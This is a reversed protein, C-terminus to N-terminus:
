RDTNERRAGPRHSRSRRAAGPARQLEYESATEVSTSPRDISDVFEALSRLSERAITIRRRVLPRQPGPTITSFLEGVTVDLARAIRVLLTARPASEGREVAGIHKQSTRRGAREGLAQQTLGREERLQRIREGLRRRIESDNAVVENGGAARTV